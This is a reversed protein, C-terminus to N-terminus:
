LRSWIDPSMCGALELVAVSTGFGRVGILTPISLYLARCM